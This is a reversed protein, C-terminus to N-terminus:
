PSRRAGAAVLSGAGVAVFTATWVGPGIEAPAPMLAHLVVVRSRRPSRSSRSTSPSRSRRAHRARVAARAAARAVQAVILEQPARSCCASSSRSSPCRSRTRAAASTPTSSSSRPRRSASRSRGGRCTSATRTPAAPRARGGPLAGVATAAILASWCGSPRPACGCTGRLKCEDRAGTAGRGGAARVLPPGVVPAGVLPARDLREGGDGRGAGDRAVGGRLDAWLARLDLVAPAFPQAADRRPTACRSRARSTSAAPATPPSTRPCTSRAPRAAAGQGPGADAGAAGAAAARRPGSVVAAAQSTGSGRFFDDGIRAAPFEEDLTSGPVRLSIVGTGPAVVDPPRVADRSSFDAVTDDAPDDTHQTDTAGVAILFPDAAPLDLSGTGDAQNGAAAVVAVGRSGCSSPPTPSRSACTPAARTSASPSTSRRPHPPRRSNRNRRVWDLAM